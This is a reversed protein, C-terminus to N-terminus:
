NSFAKPIKTINTFIMLSMPSSKLIIQRGSMLCAHCLTLKSSIIYRTILM